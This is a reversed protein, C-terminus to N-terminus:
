YGLYFRTRTAHLVHKARQPKASEQKNRMTEGRVHTGIPLIFSSMQLNLPIEGCLQLCLTWSLLPTPETPAFSAVTM